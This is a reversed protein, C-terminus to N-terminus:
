VWNSKNFYSFFLNITTVDLRVLRADAVKFKWGLSTRRAPQAGQQTESWQDAVYIVEIRIPQNQLFPAVADPQNTTLLLRYGEAQVEDLVSISSVGPLTFITFIFCFPNFLFPLRGSNLFDKTIKTHLIVDRLHYHLIFSLSLLVIRNKSIIIKDIM